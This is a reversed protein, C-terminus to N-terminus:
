EKDDTIKEFFAGAGPYVEKFNKAHHIDTTHYCYRILGQGCEVCVAEDCIYAVNTKLSEIAMELAAIMDTTHKDSSRTNHLNVLETCLIDIAENKTM